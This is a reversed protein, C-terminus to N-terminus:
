AHGVRDAADGPASMAIVAGVDAPLPYPSETPLLAQAADEDGARLLRHIRAAVPTVDTISVTWEDVYRRAAEGTLGVQLSRHPLPKLHLSREPDWQVRVPSTRLRRAWVAQSEGDAPHSLCAETLAAEFGARTIEVALVYEQGPKTAWGCRYMM